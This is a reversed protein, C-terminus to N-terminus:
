GVDKATGVESVALAALGQQTKYHFRHDIAMVVDEFLAVDSYTDEAPVSGVIRRLVRDDPIGGYLDSLAQGLIVQLGCM